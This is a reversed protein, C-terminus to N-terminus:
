SIHTRNDLAEEDTMRCGRSPMRAAQFSCRVCDTSAKKRWFAVGVGCLGCLLSGVSSPEPILPEFGVTLTIADELPAGPVDFWFSSPLPRGYYYLANYAGSFRYEMEMSGGTVSGIVYAPGYTASPTITVRVKPMPSGSATRTFVKVTWLNYLSFDRMTAPTRFDLMSLRGDALVSAAFTVTTGPPASQPAVPEGKGSDVSNTFGTWTGIQLTGGSYRGDPDSARINILWNTEDAAAMAACGLLLAVVLFPSIKKM